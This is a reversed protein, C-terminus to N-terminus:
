DDTAVQSPPQRDAPWILLLYRIRDIAVKPRALVTAFPQGEQYSFEIIEAVPYGEPFVGGLGSTLLQDGVQIDTSHPINPLELLDTEGTGNAIARIDNRVLRVPIGHSPDTMLIVRSTTPGVRAVQGVVGQDNIVPQGAYVGHLSGKDIVVQQGFNNSDVAMVETVMKREDQRAPAGLLARLRQNEHELHEMRLLEGRLTFLQRRLKHNDDILQIRSVLQQSMSDLAKAPIDAVYFFPASIVDLYSRIQSFPPWYRDSLLLATSVLIALVLRLQLSPGRGFIPKMM